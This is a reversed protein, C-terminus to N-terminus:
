LIIQIYDSFQGRPASEISFSSVSQHINNICGIQNTKGVVFSRNHLRMLCMRKKLKNSINKVPSKQNPELKEIVVFSRNLPNFITKNIISTHIMCCM